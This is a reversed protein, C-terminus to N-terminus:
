SRLPRLSDLSHLGPRPGCPFEQSLQDVSRHLVVVRRVDFVYSPLTIFAIDSHVIPSRYIPQRVIPDNGARMIAVRLTWRKAQAREALDHLTEAVEDRVAPDDSKQLVRLAQLREPGKLDGLTEVAERRVM